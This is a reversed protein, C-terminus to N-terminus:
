MAHKNDKLTIVKSSNNPKILNPKAQLGFYLIRIYLISDTGIIFFIFVLEELIKMKSKTKILLLSFQM